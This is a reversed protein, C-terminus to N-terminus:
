GLDPWSVEPAAELLPRAFLYGQMLRIGLDRLAVAEEPTEVGEAVVEIGLDACAGAVARVIARRARDGHVARTLGMDLKLIDPQCDALLNLGAYGAGFDDLATKLGMARYAALVRKLHLADAVREGETVEFVIRDLPWGAEAAAAVTTRLCAAPEYVANPLFNIHLLGPLGARAALSVAAVRCRQDFAFRGDETVRALVAGAGAGDRGRVLAEHAVVRRAALDVIPQFAMTIALDFPQRCGLCGLDRALPANM